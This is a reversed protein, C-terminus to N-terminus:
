RNPTSVWVVCISSPQPISRKGAFICQHGLDRSVVAVQGPPGRGVRPKLCVSVAEGAAPRRTLRDGDGAV